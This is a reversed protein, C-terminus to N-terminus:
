VWKDLCISHFSHGCSLNIGRGLASRSMKDMCIGCDEHFFKGRKRELEMNQAVQLGIDEMSLDVGIDNLLHMMGDVDQDWEGTESSGLVVKLENKNEENIFFDLTNSRQIVIKNSKGNCTVLNNNTEIEIM